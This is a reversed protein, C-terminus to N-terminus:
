KQSGILLDRNSEPYRSWSVSLGVTSTSSYNWVDRNPGSASPLDVSKCDSRKPEIGVTDVFFLKFFIQYISIFYRDKNFFYFPGNSLPNLRQGKVASDRTRNGYPSCYSSCRSRLLQVKITKYHPKKHDPPPIPLAVHYPLVSPSPTFGMLPSHGREM